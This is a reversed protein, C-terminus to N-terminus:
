WSRLSSQAIFVYYNGGNKATKTIVHTVNVKM